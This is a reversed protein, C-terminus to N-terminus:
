EKRESMAVGNRVGGLHAILLRAAEEVAHLALRPDGELTDEGVDGLM